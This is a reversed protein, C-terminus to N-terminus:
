ELVLVFGGNPQMDIQKKMTGAASSETAFSLPEKGDTIMTAKKKKFSSLDLM